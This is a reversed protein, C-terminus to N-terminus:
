RTGAISNEPRANQTATVWQELKRTASGSDISKTVQILSSRLQHLLPEDTLQVATIAAAANLLVTDRIPGREGALVSRAVKANHRADGGKLADIGARPIGLVRPDLTQQHAAGGKVIWVDSSACVSLEDLGDQGRFVLGQKNRHALVSAFRGVLAGDSCGLALAPVNAPNALPGLFNFTTPVGLEARVPAAHRMAKHFTSALCFTIGATRAVHEVARPPLFIEVGLERLVDAAGSSSSVAKNGHKVVTAGAGAAVVAAMTSINVTQAQDGGTGVIDVSPGPVDLLEAHTYMAEVMGHLETVSEGKARLAVAFGALQAPTANGEMIENMAWAAEAVSLDRREILHQIVHRWTRAHPHQATM